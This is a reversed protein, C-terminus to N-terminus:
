CGNQTSYVEGTITERTDMKLSSHRTERVFYKMNIQPHLRHKETPQPM